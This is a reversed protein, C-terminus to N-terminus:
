KFRCIIHQGAPLGLVSTPKPLAFKFKATNHSLQTKKVLKFDTFKEPNLSGSFVDSWSNM